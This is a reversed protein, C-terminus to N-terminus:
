DVALSLSPGETWCRALFPLRSVGVCVLKSTPGEAGTPGQFPQPGPWCSSWVRM